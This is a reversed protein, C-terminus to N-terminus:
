STITEPQVPAPEPITPRSTRVLNKFRLAPREILYYSATALATAGAFGLGLYVLFHV